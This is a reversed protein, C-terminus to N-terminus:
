GTRRPLPAETSPALLAARAVRRGLNLGGNEAGTVHCFVCQADLVPQLDRKFSVPADQAAAPTGLLLAAIMTCLATRKVPRKVPHRTM